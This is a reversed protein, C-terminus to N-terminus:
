VKGEKRPLVAIEVPISPGKFKLHHVPPDRLKHLTGRKTPPPASQIFAGQTCSILNKSTGKQSYLESNKGTGCSSLLLKSRQLLGPLLTLVFGVVLSGSRLKIDVIAPPHNQKMCLPVALPADRPGASFSLAGNLQVM